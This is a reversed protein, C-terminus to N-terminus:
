PLVVEIEANDGGPDYSITVGGWVPSPDGQRVARIQIEASVTTQGVAEGTEDVATMTEGVPILSGSIQFEGDQDTVANPHRLFDAPDLLLLFVKNVTPEEDEFQVHTYYMGAPVPVGSENLAQWPVMHTGADLIGDFLTAVFDGAYDTVWIRANGSQPLDFSIGTKPKEAPHSIVFPFNNTSDIGPLDYILGVSVGALRNGDGDVVVGRIDTHLASDPQAPGDDSCGGVLLLLILAFLLVMRSLIRHM